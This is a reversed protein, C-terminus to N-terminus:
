TGPDDMSPSKQKDWATELTNLLYHNATDTGRKPLYGHQNTSLLGLKQLSNTVHQVVRGTWLKHFVEMLM